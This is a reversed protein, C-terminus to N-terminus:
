RAGVPWKRGLLRSGTPPLVVITQSAHGNALAVGVTRIVHLGSYAPGGWKEHPGRYKTFNEPHLPPRSLGECKSQPLNVHASSLQNGRRYIVLMTLSYNNLVLFHESLNCVDSLAIPLKVHFYIVLVVL